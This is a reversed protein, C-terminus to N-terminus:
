TRSSCPRILATKRLLFGSRGLATHILAERGQRESHSTVKHRASSTERSGGRSMETVAVVVASVGTMEAGKMIVM